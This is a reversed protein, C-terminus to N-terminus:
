SERSIEGINAAERKRVWALFKQLKCNKECLQRSAHESDFEVPFSDFCIYFNIKEHYLFNQQFLSSFYLVFNWM